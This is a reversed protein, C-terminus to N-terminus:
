QDVFCSFSIFQAQSDEIDQPEYLTQVKVKALDQISLPSNGTHEHELSGGNDDKDPDEKAQQARIQEEGEDESTFNLMNLDDEIM